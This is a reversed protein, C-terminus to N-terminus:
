ARELIDTPLPATWGITFLIGVFVDGMRTGDYDSISDQLKACWGLAFCGIALVLPLLGGLVGVMRRLTLYSVLVRPLDKTEYILSLM